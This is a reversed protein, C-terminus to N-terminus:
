TTQSLQLQLLQVLYTFNHKIRNKSYFPGTELSVLNKV